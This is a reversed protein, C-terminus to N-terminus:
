KSFCLGLMLDHTNIGPDVLFPDSIHHFRYEGRLWWGKGIYYTLGAGAQLLGAVHTDGIDWTRKNHDNNNNYGVGVGGLIFLSGTKWQIPKFLINANLGLVYLDKVDERAYYSFNGEVEFDWNKHLPIEGQPLFEGLTLDHRAQQKIGVGISFGCKTKLDEQGYPTQFGHDL